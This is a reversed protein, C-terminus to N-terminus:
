RHNSLLFNFFFWNNFWFVSIFLLCFSICGWPVQVKTVPSWLCIPETIKAIRKKVLTSTNQVWVEFITVVENLAYTIVFVYDHDYNLALSEAGCFNDGVLWVLISQLIKKTIWQQESHKPNSTLHGEQVDLEVSTSFQVFFSCILFNIQQQLVTIKKRSCLKWVHLCVTCLFFFWLWPEVIMLSTSWWGEVCKLKLVTNM